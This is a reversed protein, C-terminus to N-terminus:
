LRKGYLAYRKYVEGAFNQSLGKSSANEHMFAHIVGKFGKGQINRILQNALVYGLGAWQRELKRAVTKVVLHHKDPNLLDEYAFIFGIIHGAADEALLVYEPRIITAAQKYKEPFQPWEIPTYLFNHSFSDSILPYLRALEAEYRTMDIPRIRVGMSLFKQELALIEPQDFPIQTDLSSIYKGIVEFGAKLFQENYYLPHYPELLFNPHEHELSFRYNEWTSGNMPGILWRAGEQRATDAAKNLLDLAVSEKEICEYNGICFAAAENYRLHPNLYLTAKGLIETEPANSVTLEIKKM